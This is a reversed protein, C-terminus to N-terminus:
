KKRRRKKQQEIRELKALITSAIRKKDRTELEKVLSMIRGVQGPTLEEIEEARMEPEPVRPLLKDLADVADEQTLALVMLEKAAEIHGKVLSTRAARLLKETKGLVIKASM